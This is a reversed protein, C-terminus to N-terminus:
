VVLVMRTLKDSVPSRGVNDYYADKEMFNVASQM